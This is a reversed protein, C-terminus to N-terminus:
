SLVRGEPEFLEGSPRLIEGLVVVARFLLRQLAGVAVATKLIAPMGTITTRPIHTLSCLGSKNPETNPTWGTVIVAM